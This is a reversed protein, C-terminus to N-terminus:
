SSKIRPISIHNTQLSVGAKIFNRDNILLNLLLVSCSLGRFRLIRLRKSSVLGKVLTTRIMYELGWIMGKREVFFGLEM